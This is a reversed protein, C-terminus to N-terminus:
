NRPLTIKVVGGVVLGQENLRNSPTVSGRHVEAAAKMIVTGLGVSLRGSRNTGLSRTTRRMGFNQLQEPTFGEGNDEIKITLLQNEHDMALDVRVESKTFSFANELANRFLRRMLMSNGMYRVSDPINKKLEVKYGLASYKTAVGDAEENLLEDLMMPKLGAQYMPESVQALVLLDEVLNEFYNAEKITLSMFEDKTTKDMLESKSHLTELLNKLSAVPTRLDHALDQLLLMRAKEVNKLHEVLREIEEAMKNFRSMVQGAEDMKSIPLRAKLNGNQLEAIVSDVLKVKDGFNKFLLLLACGAGLLISLVLMGLPLFFMKQFHGPPGMRPPLELCAYLYAPEKGNLRVLECPPPQPTHSEHDVENNLSILDYSKEPLNLKDWEIKHEIEKGFIPKGHQDLITFRFPLTHHNLSELKTLAVEHHTPDFEDMVKAFFAASPPKIRDRVPRDRESLTFIIHNCIYGVAIFVLIILATIFYHKRFIRSGIM